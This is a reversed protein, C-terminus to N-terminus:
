AARRRQEELQQLKKLEKRTPERKKEQPLKVGTKKMLREIFEQDHAKLKHGEKQVSRLLTRVRTASIWIEKGELLTVVLDASVNRSSKQGIITKRGVGVKFHPGEIVNDHFEKIDIWVM